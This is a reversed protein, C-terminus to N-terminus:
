LIRELVYDQANGIETWPIHCEDLLKKTAIFSEAWRELKDADPHPFVFRKIGAQIMQVACRICSCFPWTYLCCGKVSENAFLMANIECNHMPFGEVIMTHTSTQVKVIEQTGAPEVAMVCRIRHPSSHMRGFKDPNLKGLLRKPRITGLFSLREPLKGRIHAALCDKKGLGGQMPFSQTWLNFDQARAKLLRLAEDLVVGPRQAFQLTHGQKSISGEGDLLGALYGADYDTATTWPTFLKYIKSSHHALGDKTLRPNKPPILLEDTRRWRRVNNSRVGLLWLHEATCIIKSNDNFIVRFVPEKAFDVHEVVSKRYKRGSRTLPFENFGILTDGIKVGGLEVWRLDTTLTRHSPATCHVVHDYKYTRDAYLEPSDDAGQPFGNFGTGVISKNPRVIVAGTKTSTDKSWSAIHAALELFRKDWKESLM